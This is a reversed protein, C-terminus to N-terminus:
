GKEVGDWAGAWREGRGLCMRGGLRPPIDGVFFDKGSVYKGYSDPGAAPNMSMSSGMGPFRAPPPPRLSPCVRAPLVPLQSDRRRECRQVADTCSALALPRTDRTAADAPYSRQARQTTAWTATNPRAASAGIMM